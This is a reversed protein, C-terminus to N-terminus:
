VSSATPPFYLKKVTNVTNLPDLDKIYHFLMKKPTVLCFYNNVTKLPDLYKIYLFLFEFETVHGIVALFSVITISFKM